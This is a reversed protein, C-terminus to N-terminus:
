RKATAAPKLGTVRIRKTRDIFLKGNLHDMEHQFVRALLGWAKIKAPKGHRDTGSLVLKEPREVDGWKGPVSLCGEEYVAKEASLKELRPNFVAYFKPNGEADPVEAVFMRLNLGIQNASLGIGNAEHMIRRMRNVLDSIEKKTFKKFDFDATKKRLFKEEKKNAVVLIESAM